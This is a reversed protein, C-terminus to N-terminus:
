RKIRWSYAAPTKDWVGNNGARVRFTHTTRSLGTYRKGNRCSVWAKRDLKCQSKFSSVNTGNRKAIWYFTATRSRTIKAPKRVITTNWVPPPPPGGFTATVRREVGNVTVWSCTGTGTCPSVCPGNSCTSSWGTFSSGSAPTATLTVTQGPGVYKTCVTGCNITAISPSTSKVTGSGAKVVRVNLPLPCGPDGPCVPPPGGDCGTATPTGGFPAFKGTVCNAPLEDVTTEEIRCQGGGGQIAPCGEWSFNSGTAQLVVSTVDGFSWNFFYSCTWGNRPPCEIHGNPYQAAGTAGPVPAPVISTVQGTGFVEVGFFYCPGGDAGGRCRNATQETTTAGATAGSVSFAADATQAGALAVACAACAAALAVIGKSRLATHLSPKRM